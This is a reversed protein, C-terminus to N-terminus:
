HEPHRADYLAMKTLKKYLLEFEKPAPVGGALVEEDAMGGYLEGNLQKKMHMETGNIALNMIMMGTSTEYMVSTGHVQDVRGHGGSPLGGGASTFLLDSGLKIQNGHALSLIKQMGEENVVLVAEVGEVGLSLGVGLQKMSFFVPASWRHGGDLKKIIFGEGLAFEIGLGAKTVNMFVLGECGGIASPRLAREYPEAKHLLDLVEIAWKGKDVLREHLEGTQETVVPPAPAAAPAEEM